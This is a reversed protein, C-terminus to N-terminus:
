DRESASPPASFEKVARLIQRITIQGLLRGEDDVVPRRRRGSRLMEEAVDVIDDDHRALVIDKDTMVDAVRGIAADNYTASLVGRLCDLESLVGVLRHDADVVCLGSVKHILILHIAELLNADARITVPNKLMFHGLEVDKLM